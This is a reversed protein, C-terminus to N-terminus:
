LVLYNPETEMYLVIMTLIELFLTMKDIMRPNECPVLCEIKEPKIYVAYLANM